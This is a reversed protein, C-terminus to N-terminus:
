KKQIFGIKRWVKGLTRMARKTARESGDKLIKELEGRDNMLYNYKERVPRLREVLLEGLDKKFVAYGQGSYERAIDKIPKGSVASYMSVLNSIGPRKEDYAISGESDTVARKIKNVIITPEDTLAIYTAPTPNSKDMKKTPYQLNMIRSGAAPIYPEPITFTESYANNFRTAIDRALELHQKQDHGVPVLDTQYLLIDAAMLVPYTFLGANINKENKSSKDKFQTMRGLEGLYTFCGLIWALEAHAPVHSQIFVTSKSPDIGSALYGALFSLARSRLDAPKQRVTIAHLDVIAYFCDHSKQLEVWNSLAGLYNGITLTGSPACGSFLVPEKKSM